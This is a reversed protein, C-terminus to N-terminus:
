PEGQLWNAEHVLFQLRGAQQDRPVYYSLEGIFAVAQGREYRDLLRRINTDYSYWDYIRGGVQLTRPRKTHVTARVLFLNGLNVALEADAAGALRAFPPVHSAKLTKYGVPVAEEPADDRGPPGALPMYQDRAGGAPAERFRALVPFHDSVGAGPGFNHWGWPLQLVSITNTGPLILPQFSNDVYQIGTEDYLGRTIMLQMLTGWTGRYCDSRRQAPPLEFWLNYLVPGNDRPMAQEDGQSGLVDNLATKGLYPYLRQQNYHSNFDGGIIIDAHPDARLLEDLRARLTAANKRRIIEMMPDAAGSKWHNCFVTLPRGHVELTVELLGRAMEMPHTRASRIPFKSFVANKHAVEVPAGPGHAGVAVHYGKLGADELGKLLFAEVPLYRDAAAIPETLMKEVTTGRRSKLFAELDAARAKHTDDIEFEQFLVIEPGAGQNVQQLTRTIARLKGLMKQPGYTHPSDYPRFEAFRASGDIDFLNEVNYAMVAFDARLPAAALAWLLGLAAGWPARRQPVDAAMRM